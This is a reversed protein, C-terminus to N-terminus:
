SKYVSELINNWEKGTYKGSYIDKIASEIYAYFKEPFYEMFYMSNADSESILKAISKEIDNTLTKENVKINGTIIGNKALKEQFKDSFLFTMFNNVEDENKTNVPKAILCNVVIPMNGKKSNIDYNQVMGVASNDMKSANSSYSIFLPTDGSNIRTVTSDGAAEFNSESLKTEKIIRNLEDFFYQVNVNKYDEKSKNYIKMLDNGNVTNSFVLSATTNQFNDGSNIQVPIKIQLDKLKSLIPLIDMVNNPSKLGIKTIASINYFINLSTPILGIAYHKDGVLGYSGMINYYREDINEKYFDDLDSLVGKESLQLMTNRPSLIIDIDGKVISQQVKSELVSGVVDIQVDKKENKYEDIATGIIDSVYKDEVDVYAKIIKKESKDKKGCGSVIICIILFCSLYVFHKSRKKM